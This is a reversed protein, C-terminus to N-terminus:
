ENGAHVVPALASGRLEAILYEVFMRAALKSARGAPYVVHVPVAGLNWDDLVRVLIGSELERRCGWVGCSAIGLGSVAAAVAAENVNSSIVSHVRAFVMRDGRVFRWAKRNAADPGCTMSHKTLDAPVRPAGARSLYKPSAVLIRRNTGIRRSTATSDNLKGMRIAVDIGDRVLHRHVDGTALDVRLSPHTKLFGPLRPIVERIAISIPLGIRLTGRLETKTIRVAQDATELAAILPEVKLLYEAGAQTLSLARTSRTLLSAGLERELASLLRSASPQSIGLQEAARSVNGARAVRIFVKIGAIRDNM